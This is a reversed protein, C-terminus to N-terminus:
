SRNSESRNPSSRNPKSRHPSCRRHESGNSYSYSRNPWCQNSDYRPPQSRNPRYAASNARPMGGSRGAALRDVWGM